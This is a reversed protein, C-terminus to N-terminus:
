RECWDTARLGPARLLTSSVQTQGRQRVDNGSLFVGLGGRKAGAAYASADRSLMGYVTVPELSSFRGPINRDLCAPLSHQRPTGLAALDDRLTRYVTRALFRKLCRMAERKTRGQEVRRPVYTRTAQCSPLRVVVAM